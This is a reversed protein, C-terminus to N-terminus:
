HQSSQLIIREDFMSRPAAINVAQLLSMMHWSVELVLTLGKSASLRFAFHTLSRLVGLQDTLIYQTVENDVRVDLTLDLRVLNTLLFVSPPEFDAEVSGVIHLTTLQTLDSLHKTFTLFHPLSSVEVLMIDVTYQEIAAPIYCQVLSLEQLRRCGAVGLDHLGEVTCASVSLRKLGHVFQATNDGRVSVRAVNLETM